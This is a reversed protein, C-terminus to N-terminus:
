KKPRRRENGPGPGRGGGPGKPGKHLAKRIIKDFRKQQDADCINRLDNFYKRTILEKKAEINGILKAISDKNQTDDSFNFLQDKLSKMGHMASRMEHRHIFKLEEFDELQTATLKLEKILFKDPSMKKEHPKDLLLFLLFANTCLLIIILIYPLKAKM